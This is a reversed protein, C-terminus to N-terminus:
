PELSIATYSHHDLINPYWGKVEPRVLSKSVYFYIPAIPLDTLLITEAQQLLQM